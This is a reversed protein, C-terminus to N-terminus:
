DNIIKIVILWYNYFISWPGVGNWLHLYIYFFVFSRISDASVPFHDVCYCFRPRLIYKPFQVVPFSYSKTVIKIKNNRFDYFKRSCFVTVKQELPKTLSVLCTSM